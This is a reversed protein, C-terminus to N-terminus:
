RISLSSLSGKSAAHGEMFLIADEVFSPGHDLLDSAAGPAHRSGHNLSRRAGGYSFDSRMISAATLM